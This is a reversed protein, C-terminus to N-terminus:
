SPSVNISSLDDHRLCIRYGRLQLEIPDGLPGRRIIEVETGAVFGLERLRFAVSQQPTAITGKFGVPQDALGVQESRSSPASYSLGTMSALAM